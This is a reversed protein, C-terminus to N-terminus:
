NEHPIHQTEFYDEIMAQVFFKHVAYMGSPKGSVHTCDLQSGKGQGFLMQSCFFLTKHIFAGFCLLNPVTRSVSNRRGGFCTPFNLRGAM